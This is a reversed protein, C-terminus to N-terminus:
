EPLISSAQDVFDQICDEASMEGYMVSTYDNKLVSIAEASNAPDAPNVSPVAEQVRSIYSLVTKTDDSVDDSESLLERLHSNLYIGRDTGLTMCADEDNVLYNIVAAAAKPDECNKSITWYMNPNLYMGTQKGDDLKPLMVLDYQNDSGATTYMTYYNSLIFSMASQGTVIYNEETTSWAVQVEPDVFYGADVGDKIQQVAAAVASKVDDDDAWPLSQGDESFFDYGYCRVMDEILWRAEALFPIDTQVGTADYIDKATQIFESWTWEDTPYDIGAQDFIGKNYIVAVSNVGTTIGALQGDVVGGSLSDTDIYETSITGDDIYPQLDIIQGNKSYNIIDTTSMQIVDPLNNGVAQTALNEFYSDWSTYEYNLTDGSKEAYADLASITSNHREQGGWWAIRLTAGGESESASEAEGAYASTGLAMVAALSVAFIRRAKM